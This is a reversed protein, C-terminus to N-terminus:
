NFDFITMDLPFQGHRSKERNSPNITFLGDLPTDEAYFFDPSVTGVVKFTDIGYVVPPSGLPLASLTMHFHLHPASTNGSNGVNAIHDGNKVRDGVKVKISGNRLHAYFAYVEENVRLIVHNGTYTTMTITKPDPMTGPNQDPLGDLVSVITGNAVALVKEDYCIWNSPISSDGHVLYGQKDLKMFDTAFRQANYLGGYVPMLTTQHVGYFSCCGNISLWNNGELPSSIIPLGQEFITIKGADYSALTPMESAPSAAGKVSIRHIIEKPISEREAFDLNLFLVRSGDREITRNLVKASDLHSLFPLLENGKLTMLPVTPEETGFVEIVEITAPLTRTNTLLLGYVLHYKNDSGFFPTVNDLESVLVPTFVEEVSNGKM